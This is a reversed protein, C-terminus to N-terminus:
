KPVLLKAVRFSVGDSGRTSCLTAIEYISKLLNSGRGLFKEKV